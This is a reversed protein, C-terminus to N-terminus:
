ELPLRVLEVEIETAAIPEAFTLVLQHDVPFSDAECPRTELVFRRAAEDITLTHPGPCSLDVWMLIVAREGAGEDAPLQIVEIEANQARDPDAPFGQAARLLGSEDM